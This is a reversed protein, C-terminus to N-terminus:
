ERPNRISDLVGKVDPGGADNAAPEVPPAIPVIAKARRVLEIFDRRYGGPDDVLAPTALDVVGDWTISGRYPSGRLIMGFGAVAAAFKTDNSAESIGRGSDRTAIAFLKSTEESPNKYRIQVEIDAAPPEQHKTMAQLNNEPNINAQDGRDPVAIAVPVIEYLATVHHGAGLDGADKADNAFDENKLTRNEYGILRYANVTRPDFKVQFKVDKAVTVLTAGMEEVLVKRAEQRSDIYAYHGNGKDAIQELTADKLNGMGFGLVSLFVGSKAKAEALEILAQPNVVGVNFDGDTALIVRNTGGPIFHQVAVDYALQIGSGGNTSGGAELQDLVSLVRLKDGCRTSPLVLGSAGAYVVIAVRDNEGLNEVMDRLGAKVLPLKNADAMSGSVDVLFVLNSSPRKRNDIPRSTLAVRALRHSPSWPCSTFEVSAAIPHEGTPMPDHYPFYNLLEEIRVAAAPPRQNHNLFRRVNAYGATDVDISFTSLPEQAASRFPNDRIPQYAEETRIASGFDNTGPPSMAVGLGDMGHMMRRQAGPAAIGGMSGMMGGMGGIKVSQRNEPAKAKATESLMEQEVKAPQNAAQRANRRPENVPLSRRKMDSRGLTTQEVPSPLGASSAPVARSAAGDPKLALMTGNAAALAPAPTAAVAPSPRSQADVPTSAASTISQPKPASPISRSEGTQAIDYALDSSAKGAQIQALAPTAPPAEADGYPDASIVAGSKRASDAQPAALKADSTRLAVEPGADRGHQPGAPDANKRPTTIWITLAAIGLLGAAIAFHRGARLSLFRRRPASTFAAAPDASTTELAAEIEQHRELDLGPAVELRLQATLLRAAARIDDVFSRAVPNQEIIQRCADAAVPDLEDLAFATWCPDNLNFDPTNQDHTSM